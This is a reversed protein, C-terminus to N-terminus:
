HTITGDRRMREIIQKLYEIEAELSANTLELIGIDCSQKELVRWLFDDNNTAM